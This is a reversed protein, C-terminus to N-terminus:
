IIPYFPYVQKFEALSFQELVQDSYEARRMRRADIGQYQLVSLCELCVSTEDNTIFDATSVTSGQERHRLSQVTKCYALHIENEQQLWIRTNKHALTKDKLVRLGAAPIAVLGNELAERESYTLQKEPDFLEFNGPESAGMAQRLRNLEKDEFFDPLKM